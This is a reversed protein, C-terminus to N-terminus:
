SSQAKVGFNLSKKPGGSLVSLVDRIILSLFVALIM